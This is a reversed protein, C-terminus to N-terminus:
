SSGESSGQVLPITAPLTGMRALADKGRVTLDTTFRFQDRGDVPYAKLRYHTGWPVESVSVAVRHKLHTYPSSLGVDRLKECVKKADHDPRLFFDTVCMLEANGDNANAINTTWIKGHPITVATDDATVIKMARLGLSRIQGYDGDISVWDGLRYPREYLCVIGAIVSGIYDKFAFGIALGAAGLMALINQPTPEVLLPIVKFVAILLILLRLVPISTTVPSRLRVPLRQALTPLFRQVLFVALWAFAVILLIQVLSIRNWDQLITYIEEAGNM